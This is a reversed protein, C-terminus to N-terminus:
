YVTAAIIMLRILENPIRESARGLRRSQQFTLSADNWYLENHIAHRGNIDIFALCMAM